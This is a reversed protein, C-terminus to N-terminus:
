LRGYSQRQARGFRHSARSGLELECYNACGSRIARAFLLKPRTFIGRATFDFTRRAPSGPCAVCGFSCPIRECGRCRITRRGDFQSNKERRPPPAQREVHLPRLFRGELSSPGVLFGERRATGCSSGARVIGEDTPFVSEPRRAMRTRPGGVFSDGRLREPM